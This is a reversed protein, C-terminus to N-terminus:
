GILKRGILKRFFVRRFGDQEARHTETYGHRVYYTLNETMAENTYLRIEALGLDRSHDEARALLRAGIGRGQAAPQVAVNELLLYGPEPVLVVFGAVEGDDVAVWTQGDRVAQAYDATMPAPARGIRAVYKQYAAAAIARLAAVDGPGAPRIQLVASVGSAKDHRRAWQYAHDILAEVQDASGADPVLVSVWAQKGYAPHPIVRDLVAFDFEDQYSEFEAPPFGFLERFRERGVSLNLRYVGPRDLDSATDWGPYDKVVITAFPFRRDAPISDDPDYFFFSDGWAVEPDGNAGSATTAVVGPLGALRGILEEETM